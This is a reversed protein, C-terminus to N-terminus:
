DRRVRLMGREWRGGGLTNTEILLIARRAVCGARCVGLCDSRHTATSVRVLTFSTMPRGTVVRRAHVAWNRWDAREAWAADTFVLEDFVQGRAVAAAVLHDGELWVQGLKRYAGPDAALKRIRQLLPNDRATLHLPPTM